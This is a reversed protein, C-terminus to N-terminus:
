KNDMLKKIDDLAQIYSSHCYVGTSSRVDRKLGEWDIKPHTLAKRVISFHGQTEPPIINNVEDGEKVFRILMAILQVIEGEVEAWEMRDEGYHVAARVVEGAEEAIKLAVYNPQPFKESAIKSAHEAKAVLSRFYDLGDIPEPPTQLHGQNNLYDITKRVLADDLDHIMGVNNRECIAYIIEEVDVYIKETQLSQIAEKICGAHVWVPSGNDPYWTPWKAPNAALGDCAEECHACSKDHGESLNLVDKLTRPEAQLAALVSEVDARRDKHSRVVAQEAHTSKGDGMLRNFAEVALEITKNKM